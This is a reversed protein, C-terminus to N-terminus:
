KLLVGGLAASQEHSAFNGATPAHTGEAVVSGTELRADSVDMTLVVTSVSYRSAYGRVPCMRYIVPVKSNNRYASDSHM